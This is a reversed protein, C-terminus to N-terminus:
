SGNKDKRLYILLVRHETRLGEKLWRAVRHNGDVLIKRNMYEVVVAPRADDFDHTKRHKPNLGKLQDTTWLEERVIATKENLLISENDSLRENALFNLCANPSSDRGEKMRITKNELDWLASQDDSM